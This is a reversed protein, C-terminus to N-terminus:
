GRTLQRRGHPDRRSSKTIQAPDKLSEDVLDAFKGDVIDALKEDLFDAFKAAVSLLLRIVDPRIMTLEDGAVEVICPSEVEIQYMSLLTLGKCRWWLWSNRHDVLKM